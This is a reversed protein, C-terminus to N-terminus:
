IFYIGAVSLNTICLGALGENHNEIVRTDVPVLLQLVMILAAFTGGPENVLYQM